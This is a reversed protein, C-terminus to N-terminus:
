GGGKDNTGGIICDFLYILWALMCDEKIWSKRFQLM